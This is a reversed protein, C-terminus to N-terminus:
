RGHRGEKENKAKVAADYRDFISRFIERTRELHPRLLQYIPQNHEPLLFQVAEWADALDGIADIEEVRIFVPTGREQKILAELLKEHRKKTLPKKKPTKQTM